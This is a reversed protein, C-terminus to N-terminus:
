PTKSRPTTPDAQPMEAPTIAGAPPPPQEWTPGGCACPDASGQGDPKVQSGTCAGLLLALAAWVLGWLRGATLFHSMM